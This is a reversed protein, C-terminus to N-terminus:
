GLFMGHALGDEDGAGGATEAPCGCLEELSFAPLDNGGHAVGIGFRFDSREVAHDDGTEVHLVGRADLRGHFRADCTESADVSEDVIGSIAGIARKFGRRGLRDAALECPRKGSPAQSRELAMRFHRHRPTKEQGSLAASRRTGSSKNAQTKEILTSGNITSCSRWNTPRRSPSRGLGQRLNAWCADYEARVGGYRVRAEAPDKTALSRSVEKRGVVAVLDAPVRMRFWYVGTRPHIQPRSMLLVMHIVRTYCEPSVLNMIGSITKRM